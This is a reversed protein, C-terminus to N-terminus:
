REDQKKIMNVADIIATTAANFKIKDRTGVFNNQRVNTIIGNETKLATGTYVLGVPKEPTGGGPGAIGTVSIAVDCGTNMILGYAMELATQESVAGYEQM